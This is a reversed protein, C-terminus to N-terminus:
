AAPLTEKYTPVEVVEGMRDETRVKEIPERPVLQGNIYLRGKMMQIRDGPLRNVRKIYDQSTDRPLKFVIVDGRKPKSALIRGSFVDPSFPISYKSYGYSYKSVFLFDGILLTPIM